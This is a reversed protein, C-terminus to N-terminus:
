FRRPPPLTWSGDCKRESKSVVGNRQKAGNWV